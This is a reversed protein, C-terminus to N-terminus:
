KIAYNVQVTLIIETEGVSIPTEVMPAMGLASDYSIGRYNQTPVLTSSSIYTADGLTLGAESALAEAKSRADAMAEKLLDNDYESPDDISFSINNIRTLDGGAGAVADIVAGTGDVNRVKATVTNSVQYGIVVQENTADDWRTVQSISFYQTQIDKDAIGSNKLAAVVDAMAAAAENQAQSVTSEQAQVGLQLIAVDPVAMVKGEGTVWIGTQQTDLHVTEVTTPGGLCGVLALVPVLAAVSFGMLWKRNM